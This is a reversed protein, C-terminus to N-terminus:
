EFNKKKHKWSNLCDGDYDNNDYEQGDNATIEQWGVLVIYCNM